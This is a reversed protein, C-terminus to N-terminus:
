HVCVSTYIVYFPSEATVSYDVLIQTVSSASRISLFQIPHGKYQIFDEALDYTGEGTLIISVSSDEIMHTLRGKAFKPDLPVYACSAFIAGMMAAVMDIGPYCFIGVFQGPSLGADRLCFAIKQAESLLDSYCITQGDSTLIATKGPHKKAMQMTKDIISQNNWANRQLDLGWCESRLYDLEKSGCMEIEDVSQRHDRVVSTLFTCFNEFFRDMDSAEYLFSDYELRLKIGSDPDELAELQLECATPIDEASIDEITFNGTKYNPPKGYMQYNFAIQGIPFHSPNVEARVAEVIVDFSVQDHALANLVIRQIEGMLGEFAGDCTNRCRLPIMNVFFGLTEELDPHPRNGDVMLITLDEEQTYRYMFARFATLLFQFPTANTRACIRRLRKLLSLNLTNRILSRASSRKLPRQVKAFPLLRSVNLSGNLNEAWWRMDEKLHGSEMKDQYWLTFDSYTIKPAAVHSLSKGWMLADYLATFQEMFSATSGNDLAIHHCVFVATYTADAMKVLAFTMVEGDEIRMPVNRADEIYKRLKLHLIADHALDIFQVHTRSNELVAQESFTDGEFYCTRLIDNRQYLEAFTRELLSLNPHGKFQATVVFNLASPNELLNHLFWIRRQFTSMPIKNPKRMGKLERVLSTKALKGGIIELPPANTNTMKSHGSVDDCTLTMQGIAKAILAKISKSGLIDFLTVEVAVMNSFWKRFELAVISDLGYASLPNEAQITEAPVALVGAVKEIFAALLIQIREQIDTTSLLSVTLSVIGAGGSVSVGLDLNGYLNRFISRTAWHLDKTQTNIGTIIQHDDFGRAKLQLLNHSSVAEEIQYFLEDENILEYGTRKMTKQLDNNEAVTGIGSVAGVNMTTGALGLRRRHNMLADLYSNAAAYNAQGKSGVIAACSSFCIFFDLDKDKTAEHLNHSGRVKPRVCEQWQDLTMDAFLTDRLVMAAQFIGALNSGFTQVCEQVVNPDAVDGIFISVHVSRFKLWEITAKADTRETGSRSLFALNRAGKRFMWEALTRGLGGLGGILLYTKHSKFLDSNRYGSPLVPVLDNDGPVLVIKGIHKGVQLLRFGTQAEAYSLETIPNPIQINGDEVLKYCDDLVRSLLTKNCNFLTILDVSAYSTNRRFPDMDLKTNEHIDRKGIEVLRGFPAMCSWTAHLLEGALSNLAVDCGRGKTIKLVGDVFSSDRSSLIMDDSLAFNAKLFDRKSQSGVTAIVKAGLFQALQVAM